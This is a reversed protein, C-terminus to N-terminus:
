INRLGRIGFSHVDHCVALLVLLGAFPLNSERQPEVLFALAHLAVEGVLSLLRDFILDGVLDSRLLFALEDLYTRFSPDALHEIVPELKVDLRRHGLRRVM